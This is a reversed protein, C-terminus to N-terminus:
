IAGLAQITGSSNLQLRYGTQSSTAFDLFIQDPGGLDIGLSLPQFIFSSTASWTIGPIITAQPTGLESNECLSQSTLSGTSITLTIQQGIFKGACDKKGISADKQASHLLSIIKETANQGIQKNQAKTYASIGMGFLLSVIAIVVMLEILTFGQNHNTSM